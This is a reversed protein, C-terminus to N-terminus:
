SGEVYFVPPMGYTIPDGYFFLVGGGGSTPYCEASVAAVPTCDSTDTNTM